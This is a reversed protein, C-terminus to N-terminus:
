GSTATYARYAVTVSITGVPSADSYTLTFTDGSKLILNNMHYTQGYPPNKPSLTSTINRIYGIFEGSNPLTENLWLATTNTGKTYTVYASERKAPDVNLDPDFLRMQIIANGSFQTQSVEFVGVYAAKSPAIMAALASFTSILLIATLMSTVTKKMEVEGKGM